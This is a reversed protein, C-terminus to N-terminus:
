ESNPSAAPFGRTVLAARGPSRDDKSQTTRGILRVDNEASCFDCNPEYTAAPPRTIASASFLLKGPAIVVIFSSEVDSPELM